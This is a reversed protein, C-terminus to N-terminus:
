VPPWYRRCLYAPVSPPSSERWIGCCWLWLQAHGDRSGTALYLAAVGFYLATIMWLLKKRKEIVFIALFVPLNLLAVLRVPLPVTAVLRYYDNFFVLYAMTWRTDSTCTTRLWHRQFRLFSCWTCILCIGDSPRTAPRSSAGITGDVLLMFASPRFHSRSCYM